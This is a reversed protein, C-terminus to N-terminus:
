EGKNLVKTPPMSKVTELIKAFPLPGTGGGAIQAARQVAMAEQQEITPMPLAEKSPVQKGRRQMVLRNRDVIEQDTMEYLPKGGLGAVNEELLERPIGEERAIQDIMLDRKSRKIPASAKKQLPKKQPQAKKPTAKYGIPNLSQRKPVVEVEETTRTVEPVYADSNESAGKTATFALKKLVEVELSNFPFDIDLREVTATEKRMGLMIEMREKAFTRIQKQVNAVAKPDADVGEFLNHNIILRYLKGQELRLDVDTLTEDVEEVEESEEVEELEEEVEEYETESVQVATRQTIPTRPRQIQAPPSQMPQGGADLKAEDPMDVISEEEDWLNEDSM